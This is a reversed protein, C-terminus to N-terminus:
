GAPVVMGRRRKRQESASAQLGTLHDSSGVRVGAPRFFPPDRGLVYEGRYVM